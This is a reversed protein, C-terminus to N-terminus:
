HPDQGLERGDEMVLKLGRGWIWGLFVSTGEFTSNRPIRRIVLRGNEICKLALDCGVNRFTYSGEGLPEYSVIKKALAITAM